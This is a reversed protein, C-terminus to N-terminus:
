GGFIEFRRDKLYENEEIIVAEREKKYDNNSNISVKSWAAPNPCLEQTPASDYRGQNTLLGNKINRQHKHNCNPCVVEVVGNIAINLRVTMYGGCGGGSVTCYFEQYIKM